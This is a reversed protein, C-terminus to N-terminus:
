HIELIRRFAMFANELYKLYNYVTEHGLLRREKKFYDTIKRGSFINGINDFVFQMIKELLSVDRINNRKIVDKLIVSDRIASLYQYIEAEKFELHHM